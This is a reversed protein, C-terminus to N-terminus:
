IGPVLTHPTYIRVSGGGGRVAWVDRDREEEENGGSGIGPCPRGGVQTTLAKVVQM